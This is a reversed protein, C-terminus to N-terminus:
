KKPHARSFMKNLSCSTTVPVAACHITQTDTGVRITSTTLMLVAENPYAKAEARVAITTSDHKPELVLPGNVLPGSACAWNIAKHSQLSSCRCPASPAAGTAGFGTEAEM